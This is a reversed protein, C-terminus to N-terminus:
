SAYYSAYECAYESAYVSAYKPGQWVDLIIGKIFITLLKWSNVVKTSCDIKCIQCRKSYAESILIPNTTSIERM